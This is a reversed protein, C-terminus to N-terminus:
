FMVNEILIYKQLLETILFFTDERFILSWLENRGSIPSNKM